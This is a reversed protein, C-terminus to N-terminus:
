VDKVRLSTYQKSKVSWWSFFKEEHECKPPIEFLLLLSLNRLNVFITGTTWKNTIQIIEGTRLTYYTYTHIICNVLYMFLYWFNNCSQTSFIVTTTITATSHHMMNGRCPLWSANRQFHSVATQVWASFLFVFLKRKSVIKPFINSNTIVKFTRKLILATAAPLSHIISHSTFYNIWIHNM